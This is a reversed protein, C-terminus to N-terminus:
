ELEREKKNFPFNYNIIPNLILIKMDDELSYFYSTDVSVSLFKQFIRKEKTMNLFKLGRQKNVKELEEINPNSIKGNIEKTKKKIIIVNQDINNKNKQQENIIIINTNDIKKIFEKENLKENNNDRSNFIKIENENKSLDDVKNNNYNNNSYINNNEINLEDSDFKNINNNDYNNVDVDYRSTIENNVIDDDEENYDDKVFSFFSAGICAFIFTMTADGTSSIGFILGLLAGVATLIFSLIIQKKNIALLNINEQVLEECCSYCLIKGAYEGATVQYSEACDKCVNKGCKVCQGVSPEGAHFYCVQDGGYSRQMYDSNNPPTFTPAGGMNKQQMTNQQYQM